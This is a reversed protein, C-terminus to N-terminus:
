EYELYINSPIRLISPKYESSINLILKHEFKKM